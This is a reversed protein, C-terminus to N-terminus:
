LKNGRLFEQISMRRKGPAQIEKISVIGDNANFHLFSSGDTNYDKEDLSKKHAVIEVSHIKYVVGEIETWATPFPNLGRVFDVIESANKEWPIECDNKFLKPAKPLTQNYKQPTLQYDGLEISHVTKLVLNAGKIMLRDSLSGTTDNSLIAESEQHIINGTDIEHKM